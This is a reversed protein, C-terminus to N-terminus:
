FVPCKTGSRARGKWKIKPTKASKRKVKKEQMKETYPIFSYDLEPILRLEQFQYDPSPVSHRVPFYMRRYEYDYLYITVYGDLSYKISIETYHGSDRSSALFRAQEKAKGQTLLNMNYHFVRHTSDIQLAVGM